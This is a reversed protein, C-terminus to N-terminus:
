RLPRKERHVRAGFEGEYRIMRGSKAKGKEGPKIKTETKDGIEEFYRRDIEKLLATKLDTEQGAHFTKAREKAGTIGGAEGVSIGREKRVQGRLQKLLQIDVWLRYDGPAYSEKLRWWKLNELERGLVQRMAAAKYEEQTLPQKVHIQYPVYISKKKARQILGQAARAQNPRVVEKEVRRQILPIIKLPKARVVENEVCPPNYAAQTPKPQLEPEPMSMAKEAVRDTEIECRGGPQGLKLKAQIYRGLACNGVSQQLSIIDRTTLPTDQPSIGGIKPYRFSNELVIKRAKPSQGKRAALNRRLTNKRQHIQAIQKEM